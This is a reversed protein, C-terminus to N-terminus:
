VDLRKIDIAEVTDLKTALCVREAEGRGGVWESRMRMTSSLWILREIRLVSRLRRKAM